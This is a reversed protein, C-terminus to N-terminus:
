ELFKLTGNVVRIKVFNETETKPILAMICMSIPMSAPDARFPLRGRETRTLGSEENFANM